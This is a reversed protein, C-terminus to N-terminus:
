FGIVVGTVLTGKRHLRSDPSYAYGITLSLRQSLAGGALNRLEAAFGYGLARQNVFIKPAATQSTAARFSTPDSLRAHDVFLKLYLNAFDLPSPPQGNPEAAPDAEPVAQPAPSRRLFRLLALSSVGFEAQGFTLRRGIFEGEEIGRLNEPGGLRFLEFVPTTASGRAVGQSYRLFFDQPTKLGFLLEGTVKVSAKDFRYDTGFWQGGHQFRADLTLALNGLGGQGARRLDHSLTANLNTQVYSIQTREAPLLARSLGTVTLLKDHDPITVDRFGLSVTQRWAFHTLKREPASLEAARAYDDEGFSDYGFVLQALSGTERTAFDADTLNSLRQDNDRAYQVRLNAESLRFGAESSPTFPRSLLFRVRQVQNGRAFDFTLKEGLNFLNSEELGLTALFSEEVSYSGGGKLAISREPTPKRRLDYILNPPKFVEPKAQDPSLYPRSRAHEIAQVQNALKDVSADKTMDNRIQGPLVLRGAQAELKPLYDAEWQKRLQQRKRYLKRGAWTGAYDRDFDELLVKLRVSRVFQLGRVSIVWLKTDRMFQANADFKSWSIATDANHPNLEKHLADRLKEIVQSAEPNDPDFQPRGQTDLLKPTALTFVRGAVQLLENVLFTEAAADDNLKRGKKVNDIDPQGYFLDVPLAGSGTAPFQAADAESLTHPHGIISPSSNGFATKLELRARTTTPAPLKYTVCMAVQFERGQDTAVPAQDFEPPLVPDLEFKRLMPDAFM